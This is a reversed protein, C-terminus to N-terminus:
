NYNATSSTELYVLAITTFIGVFFMMLPLFATWKVRLEQRRALLYARTAVTIGLVLILAMPIAFVIVAGAAADFGGSGLALFRPLVFAVLLLLLNVWLAMWVVKPTEAVVQEKARM